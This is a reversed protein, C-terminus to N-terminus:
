EGRKGTCKDCTVRVNSTGDEEIIQALLDYEILIEERCEECRTYINDENFPIEISLGDETTIKQYFM